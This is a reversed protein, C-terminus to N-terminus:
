ADGTGLASSESVGVEFKSRVASLTVGASTTLSRSPPFDHSSIMDSQPM